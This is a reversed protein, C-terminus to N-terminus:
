HFVKCQFYPKTSLNQIYFHIGMLGREGVSQGQEHNMACNRSCNTLNACLGSIKRLGKIAQLSNRSSINRPLFLFSMFPEITTMCYSILSILHSYCNLDNPNLIIQYSIKSNMIFYNQYIALDSCMYHRKLCQQSRKQSSVSVKKASLSASSHLICTNKM